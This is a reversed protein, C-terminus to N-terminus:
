DPADTGSGVGLLVGLDAIAADRFAEADFAPNGAFAPFVTGEALCNVQMAILAPDRDTTFRGTEIGDRITENFFARWRDQDRVLSERLHPRTFAARWYEIQAQWNTGPTGTTIYTGVLYQLREWPDPYAALRDRTRLYDRESAHLCSEILLAELSGFYYQLTSVAVGSAEAIDQYRTGDFGRAVIVGIAAELIDLRKQGGVLPRPITALHDDYDSMPEALKGDLRSSCTGSSM